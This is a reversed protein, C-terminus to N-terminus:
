VAAGGGDTTLDAAARPADTRRLAILDRDDNDLFFSQELEPRTLVEIFTGYAEAQEAASFEVLVIRVPFLVSAQRVTRTRM